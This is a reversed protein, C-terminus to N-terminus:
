LWICVYTITTLSMSFFFIRVRKRARRKTIRRHVLVGVFVATLLVVVMSHSWEGGWTFARNIHQSLTAASRNIVARDASASTVTPPIKTM